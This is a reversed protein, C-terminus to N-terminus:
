SRPDWAKGCVDADGRLGERRTAAFDFYDGSVQRSATDFRLEYGPITPPSEPLLRQRSRAGALAFERDWRSRRASEAM